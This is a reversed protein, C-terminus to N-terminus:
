KKKKKDKSKKKGKKDKNKGKSKKNEKNKNKSKKKKPKKVKTTKSSTEIEDQIIANNQEDILKQANEKLQNASFEKIGPVNCLEEITANIIDDVSHFGHTELNVARINGVGNIDTIKM